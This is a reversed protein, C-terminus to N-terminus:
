RGADGDGTSTHCAYLDPAPHRPPSTRPERGTSPPVGPHPRAGLSSNCSRCRVVLPGAEGHHVQPYIHDATLDRSPHPPRGAGGPCVWGNESVWAAVLERRRKREGWSTPGLRAQQGTPRQHEFCRSGKAVPIGCVLCPRKMAGGELSGRGPPLRGGDFSAGRVRRGVTSPQGGRKPTAQSPPPHPRHPHDHRRRERRRVNRWLPPWPM